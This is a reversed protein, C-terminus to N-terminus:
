SATPTRAACCASFGSTATSSPSSTGTQTSKSSEARARRAGDLRRRDHAAQPGDRRGGHGRQTAGPRHRERRRQAGLGLPFLRPHRVLARRGRRRRRPPVRRLRHAPLRLRRRAPWLDADRPQPRRHSALRRRARHARRRAPLAPVLNFALLIVNMAATFSLLLFAPPRARRPACCRRTSSRAQRGRHALRGARLGRGRPAHRAPPRRRHPVRRGADRAPPQDAGDRRLVVPRHARGRHGRAARRARPRARAPDPLRLLAADRRRRGRLGAHGIRWCRASRARCSSSSWSSSVFWSTTV